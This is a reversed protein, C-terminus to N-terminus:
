VWMNAIRSEIGLENHPEKELTSGGRNVRILVEREEPM